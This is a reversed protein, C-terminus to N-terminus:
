SRRLRRSAFLVGGAGVLLLLGWEADEALADPRSATGGLGTEVGGDPIVSSTASDTLDLVTPAGKASDIVALTYSDNPAFDLESNSSGTTAHVSVTDRGPAVDTYGSVEPFRLSAALTDSAADITVEPDHLSAEIVRVDSQGAPAQLQDDLVQLTLASAPGLGAVTYAKGAKVDIDTSIVPSTSPSAGAGRMAVVYVGPALSEYPSADGYAVHDLVLRATSVGFSYLYVDVPPTNPSLHALRVWGVPSATSSTAFATGPAVALLFVAGAALVRTQRMLM